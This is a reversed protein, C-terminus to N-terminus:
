RILEERAMLEARRYAQTVTLATDVRDNVRVYWFCMAPRFGDRTRGWMDWNWIAPLYVRKLRVPSGHRMFRRVTM